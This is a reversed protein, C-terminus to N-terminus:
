PTAEGSHKHDHGTDAPTAVYSEVSMGPALREANPQNPDIAIYIGIRQPIKVFNGTANDPKVVAFESGTAPAIRFVRGTFKQGNLGDVTFSAAQGVRINGTQAEKYEAVVWRENPVLSFLATGAGVYAGIHTGGTRGIVGDSEAHIHTRNLDIQASLLSAEAQRVDASLVQEQIDAAKVDAEAARVDALAQRLSAEDSRWSDLGADYEKQSVSQDGVLAAQRRHDASSRTLHARATMLAAQRQDLRARASAQNQRNNILAAQKSGLDAQTQAVRAKYTSEDIQVLLQGKHVTAYDTVFVGEIYGPVQPSVIMVHGQMYADDTRVGQEGFPALDFAALICAIAIVALFSVIALVLLTRRPPHWVPAPSASPATRTDHADAPANPTQTM